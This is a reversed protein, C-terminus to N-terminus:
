DRDEKPVAKIKEILREVDRIQRKVPKNKKQGDTPKM